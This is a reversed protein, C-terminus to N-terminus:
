EEEDWPTLVIRGTDLDVGAVFASVMPFRREGSEAVVVLIDHATGPEVDTVSGIRDGRQDVAELGVLQWVFWENRGLRRAQDPAVCLYAGRLAAAAEPSDVGAFGLLVDTAALRRASRIVLRRGTAEVIVELGSRFRGPDDGLSEVRVEGGLGQPRRVLAARLLSPAAAPGTM